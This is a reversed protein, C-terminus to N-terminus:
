EVQCGNIDKTSLTAAALKVSYSIYNHVTFIHGKSIALLISPINTQLHMM